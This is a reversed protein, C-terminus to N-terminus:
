WQIMIGRIQIELANAPITTGPDAIARLETLNNFALIKHGVSELDFASKTANARTGPPLMNPYNANVIWGYFELGPIGPRRIQPPDQYFWVKGRGSTIIAGVHRIILARNSIRTWDFRMDMYGEDVNAPERYSFEYEASDTIDNKNITYTWFPFIKPTSQQTSGSFNSAGDLSVVASKTLIPTSIGTVPDVLQFSGGYTSGFAKVLDENTRYVRGILMVRTPMENHTIGESGAHIRVVLKQTPLVKITTNLLPDSSGPVGLKVPLPLYRDDRGPIAMNRDGYARVYFRTETAYPQGDILISVYKLDEPVNAKYPPYVWIEEIEFLKGGADLSHGDRYSNASVAGTFTEDYIVVQDPIPM